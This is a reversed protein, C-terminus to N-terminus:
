KRWDIAQGCHPCYHTGKSLVCDDEDRGQMWCVPCMPVAYRKVITTSGHEVCRYEVTYPKKPIQKEYAAIISSTSSCIKKLSKNTRKLSKVFLETLM